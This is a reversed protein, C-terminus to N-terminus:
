RRDSPTSPALTAAADAWGAYVRAQEFFADVRPQDIGANGSRDPLSGMVAMIDTIAKATEEDDASEPPVIGDGNLKTAAFIKETSSVDALTISKADPKGLNKLILKAGSLIDRGAATDPSISALPVEDSPNFLDGLDRLVDKLWVIAALIEPPRLRGDGDLDLLKLSRADLEVGKVPCALAVWLKQDLTHLNVLDAADALVVQDVGGARFFKWSHATKAM